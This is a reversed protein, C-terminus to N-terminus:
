ATRIVGRNFESTMIVNKFNSVIRRVSRDPLARFLMHWSRSNWLITTFIPDPTADTRFM